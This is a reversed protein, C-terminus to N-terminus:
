KPKQQAISKSVSKVDFQNLCPYLVPPSEQSYTSRFITLYNWHGLQPTKDKLPLKTIPSM